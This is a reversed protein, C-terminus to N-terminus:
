TSNTSSQLMEADHRRIESLGAFLSVITLGSVLGFITLNRRFEKQKDQKDM